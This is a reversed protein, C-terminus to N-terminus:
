GRQKQRYAIYDEMSMKGPDPAAAAGGSPASRPPPAKTSKAATPLSLRAEIQGIERAAQLPSMANLARAKEPKGALYYALHASKNSDLILDHLHPAFRLGDNVAQKMVKDYDAVRERLEDESDDFADLKERREASKRENAKAQDDLAREERIAQRVEYATQAREFAAYDGGFDAEKPRDDREPQKGGREYEAVRAALADREAMIAANRRKERDRRSARRPKDEDDGADDTDEAKTSEGEAETTDTATQEANEAATTDNASEAPAAEAAAQVDTGDTM